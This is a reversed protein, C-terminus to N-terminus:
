WRMKENVNVIKGYNIEITIEKVSDKIIILHSKDTSDELDIPIVSVNLGPIEIVTGTM